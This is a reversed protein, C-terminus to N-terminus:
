KVFEFTGDQYITFDWGKTVVQILGYRIGYKKNWKKNIRKKKHRRIPVFKTVQIDYKDPIESLDVGFIKYLENEDIPKDFDITLTENMKGAFRVMKHEATDYAYDVKQESQINVNKVNDFKGLEVGSSHCFFTVSCPKENMINM